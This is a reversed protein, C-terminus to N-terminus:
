EATWQIINFLIKDAVPDSGLNEVLRLTNLVYRGNGHPVVGMDMGFFAPEPGIYSQMHTKEGAYFGYSISGVILDNGMDKLVYPSWVNEYEQGMMCNVPLGDFVPHDTVIHSVGVWLGLAHEKDKEIPLVEDSPLQAGWYVNGPRRLAQLYVATGGDKVFQELTQFRTKLASTKAENDVVYVPMSEPTDKNFEVFPIGSKELFPKLKNNSDLVAIKASPTLLDKSGFVDFGFTNQAVLAGSADKLSVEAKFAGSLKSADLAEELLNSVGKGLEVNRSWKKVPKGSENVLQVTLSGGIMGLDNIGTVRVKADQGAYINRPMVRVALYRPANAEKTGYYSQKPNRWLDLLGAGLVWDGGTLAHVCYGRVLPNSRIAEIMRKNADSHIQQQEICFEQVSPYIADLGSEKLVQATTEELMQHYRYPPVLPNGKERFRKNNEVVDPISGYGIESVLSMLGPHAHKNRVRKPDFGVANMEQPTMGLSLFSNYTDDNIPAGCYIHIDNFKTPEVKYPLYINAGDAFGGSEDLIMRSPDLERALMSMPHKMRKLEARWIENFIEWQVICARNRDRMIAARVEHEIRRPMDPTVTPWQKMCEIPLGGIVLVGMEDCLDLWAPPPPKRWPRIMNFGADKALQIERHAMEMNDPLALKTPYLGEFFAAKIYVPEGNLLFEKDKITLERMGFRASEEDSGDVSVSVTYLNPADPLWYQADPIKVTWDGKNTGPDLLMSEKHEAVIQGEHSISVHVKKGLRKTGTNNLTLEVKASDDALRPIVFVDDITVPGAAVLRVSQWIGGVIAGRWHPADNKGLGDIVLDERTVIPGVVRLSLFNERDYDLLDDVRFEFPSYGGEHRGVCHDNLWVESIYNVADFQLRVTKGKWDKPISFTKGYTVVGEYDQVIEEWCSPVPIPRSELAQFVDHTHWEAARGENAADFVINWEGDLSQSERLEANGIMAVVLAALAFMLKKM